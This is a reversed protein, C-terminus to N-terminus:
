NLRYVIPIIVQAEIPPKPFPSAEKVAEMANKDLIRVGSSQMIKIERVHGDACVIFSLVIKGEWGMQRAIAPYTIKKQIMDRIYSFNRKLYSINRKGDSNESGGGSIVKTVTKIEGIDTSLDGTAGQSTHVPSQEAPETVPAQTESIPASVIPSESREIKELAPKMDVTKKIISQYKESAPSPKHSADKATNISDKISFDIVILKNTSVTFNSIGLIFVFILTHISLSLQLAKFQHNM